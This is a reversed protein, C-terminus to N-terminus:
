RIHNVVDYVWLPVKHDQRTVPYPVDQGALLYHVEDSLPYGPAHLWLVDALVEHVPSMLLWM